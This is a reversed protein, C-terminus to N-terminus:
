VEGFLFDVIQKCTFVTPFRVKRFRVNRVALQMHLKDGGGM